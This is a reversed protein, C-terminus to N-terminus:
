AQTAEQRGPYISFAKNLRSIEMVSNVRPNLGCLRLSVGQQGSRLLCKVLSALGSSDMFAVETLDVVLVKPSKEVLSLLSQQFAEAHRRDVDGAAQALLV